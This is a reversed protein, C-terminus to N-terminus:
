LYSLKRNLWVPLVTHRQAQGVAKSAPSARRQGFTGFATTLREAKELGSGGSGDLSTRCPAHFFSGTM